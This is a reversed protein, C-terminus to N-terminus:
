NAPIRAAFEVLRSRAAAAAGRDLAGHDDSRGQDPHRAAPLDQPRLVPRGVDLGPTRLYSLSPGRITRRSRSSPARESVAAADRRRPVADLRRSLARRRRARSSAPIPAGAHRRADRRRGRGGVKAAGRARPRIGARTGRGRVQRIRRVARRRRGRDAGGKRARGRAEVGHLDSDGVHRRVARRSVLRSGRCDLGCRAAARARPARHRVSGGRQARPGARRIRGRCVRDLVDQSRGPQRAAM